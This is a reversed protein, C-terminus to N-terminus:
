KSLFTLEPKITANSVLHRRRKMVLKRLAAASSAYEITDRNEFLEPQAVKLWSFGATEAAVFFLREVAHAMTGDIQGGSIDVPFDNLELADWLPRLAATRMWLMSGSPFDLPGNRHIRAGMRAALRQCLDFNGAWGLWGRVGELHQAAIAGVDPVQDFIEFISRVIDPSGILNELLHQRWSRLRPEQSSVKSHLLLVFEYDEYLDRLGLLRPAIDRGQRPTIRIEVRGPWHRLCCEIDSKKEVTDTSIFIDTSYPINGIYRVIENTLSEAFMHVVAAIKPSIKLPRLAYQLPIAISYDEEPPAIRAERHFIDPYRLAMEAELSSVNKNAHLTSRSSDHMRYECLLEPVFLGRLGLTFFRCWLDYDEWGHDDALVAYGGAKILATRRILAMVDVTNGLRLRDVHWIDAPFIDTREGFVFTQSYAFDDGSVDLAAKLRSLAPARIRNDADLMFLLPEDSWAIGSNRAMSPGQNRIHRIVRASSFRAANAKLFDIVRAPGDDTSGDDVVVVSVHELTQDVVSQLCDLLYRGYNYLPIIVAVDARTVGAPVAEFAVEGLSRVDFVRM